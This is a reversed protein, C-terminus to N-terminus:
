HLVNQFVIMNVVGMIVIKMKQNVFDFSVENQGNSSFDVLAVSCM